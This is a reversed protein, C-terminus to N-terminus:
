QVAILQKLQVACLALQEKVDRELLEVLQSANVPLTIKEKKLEAITAKTFLLLESTDHWQGLLEGAKRAHTTLTDTHSSPLVQELITLQYYLAKTDKRVGHWVTHHARSAPLIIRRHQQQLYNTLAEVAASHDTDAIAARFKDPLFGLKKLPCHKVTAQLMEKATAQKNQLLLHAFSFRWHVKKEYARLHKEQLQTDRSAGGIAQILRATHLHKGAGFSYEPLQKALTFFARLKKVGVRMVHIADADGSDKQLIEYAAAVSDCEKHLYHYLASKLM